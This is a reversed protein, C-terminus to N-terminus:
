NKAKKQYIIGPKNIPDSDSLLFQSIKFQWSMVCMTDTVSSLCSTTDNSTLIFNKYVNKSFSIKNAM